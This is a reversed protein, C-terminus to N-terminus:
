FSYKADLQISQDDDTMMDLTSFSMIPQVYIGIAFVRSNKVSGHFGQFSGEHEFNYTFEKLVFKFTDYTGIAGFPGFSRKNTGFSISALGDDGCVGAVSTLYEVSDDFTLLDFNLGDPEGYIKSHSVGKHSRYVFQISNIMTKQHTILIQAVNSKGREDWNSGQMPKTGLKLMKDMKTHKEDSFYM